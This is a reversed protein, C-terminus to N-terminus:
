PVVRGARRKWGLHVLAGVAGLVLGAVGSPIWLMVMYSLPEGWIASEGRGGSVSHVLRTVFEPALALSPLAVGALLGRVMWTALTSKTSLATHTAM